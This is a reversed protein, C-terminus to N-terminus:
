TESHHTGDCRRHVAMGQMDLNGLAIHHTAADAELLQPCNVSLAPAGDLEVALKILRRHGADKVTYAGNELNLSAM